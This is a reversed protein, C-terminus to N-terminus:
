ICWFYARNTKNFCVCEHLQWGTVNRQLCVRRIIESGVQTVAGDLAIEQVIQEENYTQDIHPTSTHFENSIHM